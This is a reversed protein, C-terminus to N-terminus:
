DDESPFKEILCARILNQTLGDVIENDTMKPEISRLEKFSKQISGENVEYVEEVIPEWPPFQRMASEFREVENLSVNFARRVYNLLMTRLLLRSQETTNDMTAGVKNQQPRNKAEFVYDSLEIGRERAKFFAARSFAYFLNMKRSLVSSGRGMEYEGPVQGYVDKAARITALVFAKELAENSDKAKPTEQVLFKPIWDLWSRFLESTEKAPIAISEAHLELGDEVWDSSIYINKASLDQALPERLDMTLLLKSVGTDWDAFLDVFHLNRLKEFHPMVNDIRAPILYIQSEPFEDLIELGLRIERNVFGRKEVSHKSILIIFYRSEKIAASIAEKWRQGPLLDLEDLWPQAGGARLVAHLKRATLIDERAYSIFVKPSPM